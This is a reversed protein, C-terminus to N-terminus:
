DKGIGTAERHASRALRRIDRQPTAGRLSAWDKKLDSRWGASIVSWPSSLYLFIVAKLGLAVPLRVCSCGEAKRALIEACREEAAFAEREVAAAAIEGIGVLDSSCVDSSWDSIRM